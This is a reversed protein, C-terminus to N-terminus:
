LFAKVFNSSIWDEVYAEWRESINNTNWGFLLWVRAHCFVLKSSRRTVDGVHSMHSYTAKVSLTIVRVLRCKQEPPGNHMKQLSTTEFLEFSHLRSYLSYFHRDRAQRWVWLGTRSVGGPFARPIWQAVHRCRYGSWWWGPNWFM